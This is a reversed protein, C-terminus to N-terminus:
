NGFGCEWIRSIQMRKFLSALSDLFRRWLLVGPVGIITGFFLKGGDGINQVFANELWDEAVGRVVGLGV